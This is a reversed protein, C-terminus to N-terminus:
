TPEEPDNHSAWEKTGMMLGQVTAVDADDEIYVTWGLKKAGALLLRLGERREDLSM